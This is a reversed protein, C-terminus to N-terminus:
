AGTGTISADEGEAEHSAATAEAAQADPLVNLIMGCLTAAEEPTASTAEFYGYAAFTLFRAAMGAAGERRAEAMWQHIKQNLEDTFENMSKVQPVVLREPAM